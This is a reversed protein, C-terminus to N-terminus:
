GVCILSWVQFYAARLQKPGVLGPRTVYTEMVLDFAKDENLKYQRLVANHVFARTLNKVEDMTFGDDDPDSM